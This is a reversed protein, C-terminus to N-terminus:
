GEEGEDDDDDVFFVDEVKQDGNAGPDRQATVGEVQRLSNRSRQSHPTTAPTPTRSRHESRCNYSAGPWRGRM